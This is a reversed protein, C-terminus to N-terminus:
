EATEENIRMQLAKIENINRINNFYFSPTSDATVLGKSAAERNQKELEMKYCELLGWITNLEKSNLM